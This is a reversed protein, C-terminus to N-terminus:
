RGEEEFAALMWNPTDLDDGSDPDLSDGYFEFDAETVDDTAVLAVDEQGFEIWSSILVEPDPSQSTQAPDMSRFGILIAVIAAAAIAMVALSRWALTPHNAPPATDATRDLTQANEIWLVAREVAERALQDDALQDEFRQNAQADLEGLVYQQAILDLDHDLSNM